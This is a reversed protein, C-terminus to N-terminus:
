RGGREWLHRGKKLLDQVKETAQDKFDCSGTHFVQAESPLFPAQLTTAPARPIPPHLTGGRRM